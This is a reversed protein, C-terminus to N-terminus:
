ARWPLMRRLVDDKLRFHHHLAAAVHVVLVLALVWGMLGHGAEFLEHLPESKEVLTPLPLGFMAVARGGSQSLLIGDIPMLIMLGYLAAHGLRAALMERANMTAPLAPAPHLFRWGLRVVALVLVLVGVSKHMGIIDSRLPGKPLSELTQGVIWLAIMALAMGWHLLQAVPDYRTSPTHV